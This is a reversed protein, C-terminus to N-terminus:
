ILNDVGLHFNKYSTPTVIHVGEGNNAIMYKSISEIYYQSWKHLEMLIESSEIKNPEEYFMNSHFQNGETNTYGDMGAVYIRKAGMSVAVGIMLVSVTRCSSSIIGNEIEFEPGLVDQYYVTEYERAVREDIVEDPIYAGLLLKSDKHVQDIYKILRKTVERLKM